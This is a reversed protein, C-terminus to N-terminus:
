VNLQLHPKIVRWEEQVSTTTERARQQSAGLSDESEVTSMSLDKVIGTNTDTVNEMDVNAVELNKDCSSVGTTVDETQTELSKSKPELWSM